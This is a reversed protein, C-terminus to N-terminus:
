DSLEPLLEVGEVDECVDREQAWESRLLPDSQHDAISVRRWAPGLLQTCAARQLTNADEALRRVNWVLAVNDAGASVLRSGDPTFALGRVAERHGDLITLLQGTDVLWVRIKANEGATAILRGDRSWAIALAVNVDPLMTLQLGDTASWVHVGSRGSAALRQGDHSFALAQIAGEAALTAQLKGNAAVWLKVTGDAGATAIRSGDPSWVAHRVDGIHGKLTRVLKSDSVRWVRAADGAVLLYRGDPAFAVSRARHEGVELTRAASADAEEFPRVEIRQGQDEVTAFRRGEPSLAALGTQVSALEAFDSTRVLTAGGLDRILMRSGDASPLVDWVPRQRRLEAEIRVDALPWIRSVGDEGVSSLSKSDSSFTLARVGARHGRLAAMPRTGSWVRVLGKADAAALLMGNPSFALDTVSAGMLEDMTTPQETNATRWVHVIGGFTGAAFYRGNPSVAVSELRSVSANAITEGDSVRVVNAGYPGGVVIVSGDASLEAGLAAPYVTKELATGRDATRWVRLVGLSDVGVVHAGDPTFAAVSNYRFGSNPLQWAEGTSVSWLTAIGSSRVLVQAGDPSFSVDDPIDTLARTWLLKWSTSSYLSLAKGARAVAARSGDPSFAAGRIDGDASRLAKLLRGDAARWVRATGERDGTMVLRGDPAFPAASWGGAGRELPPQAEGAEHMAMALATRYEEMNAPALRMGALAYQAAAVTDGQAVADRARAAFLRHLTRKAEDANRQAM